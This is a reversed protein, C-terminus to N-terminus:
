NYDVIICIFQMCGKGCKVIGYITEDNYEYIFYLDRTLQRWHKMLAVDNMTMQAM